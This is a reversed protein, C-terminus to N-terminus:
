RFLGAYPIRMPELDDEPGFRVVLEGAISEPRPDPFLGAAWHVHVYWRGAAGSPFVTGVPEVDIEFGAAHEGEASVADVRFAHRERHTGIAVTQGLGPREAQPRLLVQPPEFYLDSRILARYELDLLPGPQGDVRRTKLKVTGARPGPPLEADLHLLVSTAGGGAVENPFVEVTLEEPAFELGVIELQGHETPFFEVQMSKGKSRPVSKFDAKEPVIRFDTPVRFHAELTLFPTASSDTQLRVMVLKDINAERLTHTTIRLTLELRGGEPIRILAEPDEPSAEIRQDSADFAVLGPVTCSCSPLARLVRVPGADRNDLVFTHEFTTGFAVDGFEHFFARQEAGEPVVQEPDPRVVLGAEAAEAGTCSQLVLLGAPLLWALLRAPLGLGPSLRHSRQLLPTQRM